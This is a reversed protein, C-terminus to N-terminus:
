PLILLIIDSTVTNVGGPMLRVYVTPSPFFTVAYKHTGSKVTMFPKCSTM